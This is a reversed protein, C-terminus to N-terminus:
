ASQLAMAKRNRRKKLMRSLLFITSVGMVFGTTTPHAIVFAKTTMGLNSLSAGVSSLSGSAQSAVVTSLGNEM